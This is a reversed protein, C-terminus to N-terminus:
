EILGSAKLELIEDDSLNLEHSLVADTSVGLTPPPLHYKLESHSFKLPNAIQPVKQNNHDLLEFLLERHKVQPDNLAQEINNVP